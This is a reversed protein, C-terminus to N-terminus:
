RLVAVGALTAVHPAAHAALPGGSSDMATALPGGSSDMPHISFLLLLLFALM